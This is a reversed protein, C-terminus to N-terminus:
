PATGAKPSLIDLDMVVRRQAPNESDPTISVDLIRVFPLRGELEAVALLLSAINRGGADIPIRVNWRGREYDPINRDDRATGKADVSSIAIGLPNFHAKLLSPLWVAPSGMTAAREMRDLESPARGEEKERARIEGITKRAGNLRGKLGGTSARAEAESRVLPAIARARFGAGVALALGIAVAFYFRPRSDGSKM